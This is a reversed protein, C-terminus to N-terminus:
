KLSRGSFPEVHSIGFEKEIQSMWADVFKPPKPNWHYASFMEAEAEQQHGTMAYLSVHSTMQEVPKLEFTRDMRVQGDQVAQNMAARFARQRKTRLDGSRTLFDTISEGRNRKVVHGLLSHASEHTILGEVPHNGAKSFWGGEQQGKVKELLHSDPQLHLVHDGGAFPRSSMYAFYDSKRKSTIPTVESIQFGYAKRMQDSVLQVGKSSADPFKSLGYVKGSSSPVNTVGGRLLGLQTRAVGSQLGAYTRGSEILDKSFTSVPVGSYKSVYITGAAILAVAAVSGGIIVAKKLKARNEPSMSRSSTDTGEDEPKRVGWRMGKVGYHVLFEDVALQSTM